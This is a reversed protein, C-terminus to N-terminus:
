LQLLKRWISPLQLGHSVPGVTTFTLVTADAVTQATSLVVATGNVSDVTVPGEIGPGTVVQRQVLSESQQM